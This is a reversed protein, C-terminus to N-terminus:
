SSSTSTAELSCQSLWSSPSCLPSHEMSLSCFRRTSHLGPNWSTELSRVPSLTKHEAVMRCPPTIGPSRDTRRHYGSSRSWVATAALGLVGKVPLLTYDQGLTSLRVPPHCACPARWGLKVISTAEVTTLIATCSAPSRQPTGPIGISALATTVRISVHSLM